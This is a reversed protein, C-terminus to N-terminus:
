RIFRLIFIMVLRTSLMLLKVLGLDHLICLTLNRLNAIPMPSEIRSWINKIIHSLYGKLRFHIVNNIQSTSVKQQHTLARKFGVVFTDQLSFTLKNNENQSGVMNEFLLIDSIKSMMQNIIALHIYNCGKLSSLELEDYYRTDICITPLFSARFYDHINAKRWRDNQIPQEQQKYGFQCLKVPSSKESIAKVFATVGAQFLVDDDCLFWLHADQKKALDCLKLLSGDLGLNIENKIYNLKSLGESDVSMKVLTPHPKDSNDVVLVSAYDLKDIAQLVLKVTALCEAPRNYTPIGIIIPRM